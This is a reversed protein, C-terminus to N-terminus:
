AQNQIAQVAAAKTSYLLNLSVGKGYVLDVTWGHGNRTVEYQVLDGAATHGTVTYTGQSNRTTKM